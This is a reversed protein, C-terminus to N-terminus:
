KKVKGKCKGKGKKNRGWRCGRTKKCGTENLKLKKCPTGVPPGEQKRCVGSETFECQGDKSTGIRECVKKSEFRQLETCTEPVWPDDRNDCVKNYRLVCHRYKPKNCLRKPLELCNSSDPKETPKEIPRRTVDEGSGSEPCPSDCSLMCRRVVLDNKECYGLEALRPCTTSTDEKVCTETEGGDDETPAPTPDDPGEASDPDKCGDTNCSFRCRERVLENKDCYGLEALKACTPVADLCDDGQGNAGLLLVAFLLYIM